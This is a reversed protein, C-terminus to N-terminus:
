KAALNTIELLSLGFTIDTELQRVSLMELLDLQKNLNLYNARCLFTTNM